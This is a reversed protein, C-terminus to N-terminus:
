HIYAQSTTSSPFELQVCMSHELRRMDSLFYICGEVKPPRNLSYSEGDRRRVHLYQQVRLHQEDVDDVQEPLSIKSM